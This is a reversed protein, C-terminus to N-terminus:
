ERVDWRDKYARSRDGLPIAGHLPVLFVEDVELRADFVPDRQARGDAQEDAVLVLPGLVVGLGIEVRARTMRVPRVELLIAHLRAATPTTAACALRNTLPRPITRNHANTCEGPAFSRRM